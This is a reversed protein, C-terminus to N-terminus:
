KSSSTVTLPLTFLPASVSETQLTTPNFAIIQVPYTGSTTIPVPKPPTVTYGSNTCSTISMFVGSLMMAICIMALYRNLRKRGAIVGLLGLGFLGALTWPTQPAISSTTTGSTVPVNTNLTVVITSPTSSKITVLGVSNSAYGFTCDTDNPLSASVCQLTVGSPSDFGVLPMLTLTASVPTGGTTSLSSPSASIELSPEIDYLTPLNISEPSYNQDGSYNATLNYTGAPLNVLTLEALGGAEITSCPQTPDVPKGNEEFSVCGTPTGVQSSVSATIWVGTGVQVFTNGLYPTVFKPNPACGSATYNLCGQNGAPGVAFVPTAPSITFTTKEASGAYCAGTGSCSNLTSGATGEGGYTVLVNYTGGSLGTYNFTATGNTLTATQSAQTPGSGPVKIIVTGGPTGPTSGTAAPSVTVTATQCGPYTSGECGSTSTNPAFTVSVTTAPRDDVVVNASLALNLGSAANAANSMVTVSADDAPNAATTLLQLGLYCSSGPAVSTSPSCAPTSLTAEEVSYDSADPGGVVDNSFAAPTLPTNGLNALQADVEYPVAPNIESYSNNFDIAGNISLQSLGATAGSGYDAYVNESGDLGVGIPPVSSNAGLGSAMLVIGNMNLASSTYPIWYLGSAGAAFISGSPDIALGTMASPLKSTVETAGGFPMTIEWLNTGDAVWVNGSNDTAIASPGSFSANPALTQVPPLNQRLLQSQPNAIEDVQKNAEDAVFIDGMGDVALSLNGTGFGSAIVTQQTTALAGNIYPIEIVNGSDGIFLDGAQDVAVGTPASLGKGYTATPSSAASTGAAYFAIDKAGADAVYVDGQSDVAVQGPQNLGSSVVPSESPTALSSIAAGQGVGNLYVNSGTVASGGSNLVQVDSGALGAEQTNLQVYLICWSFSSNTEEIPNWSPYSTNASCPQPPTTEYPANLNGVTPTPNPVVKFNKAGLGMPVFSNAGTTTPQNFTYFVMAYPSLTATASTSGSTGNPIYLQSTTSTAITDSIEFQTSSLGTSEVYFSIGNLPYLPDSSNTDTIKVVQNETFSNNATLTLTGGAVSFGTITVPAGTGVAAAQLSAAGPKWVVITSYLCTNAITNANTTDCTPVTSGPPAYNSSGGTPIWLFGRRDVLATQGAGIPAVMFTDNWVLNPNTPTGENPIMFVGSVYGAYSTNYNSSFYLNGQADLTVGAIGTFENSSGVLTTDAQEVSGNGSGTVVAPSSALNNYTSEIQSATIELIGPTRETVPTPYINEVFYLNGASDVTISTVVDQLGSIVPFVNSIAGTSVNVTCAFIAAQVNNTTSFYVENYGSGHNPLYSPVNDTIYLYQPSLKTLTGNITYQPSWSDNSNFEWTGASANYPVRCFQVTSSYRNGVYVNNGSDVALGGNWYTGSAELSGCDNTGSTGSGPGAVLTPTLAGPALQFLNSDASDLFLINGNPSETMAYVQGWIGSAGHSFPVLSGGLVPPPNGPTFSFPLQAMAASGPLLGAILVLCAIRAVRRFRVASEITM